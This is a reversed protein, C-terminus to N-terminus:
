KVIMPLLTETTSNVNPTTSLKDEPVSYPDIPFTEEPTQILFQGQHKM